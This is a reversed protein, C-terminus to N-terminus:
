PRGISALAEHLGNSLAGLLNAIQSEPEKGPSSIHGGRPRGTTDLDIHIFMTGFPTKVKQTVCLERTTM